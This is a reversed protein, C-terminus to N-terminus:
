LTVRLHIKCAGVHAMDVPIIYAQTHMHTCMCVHMCTNVNTRIISTGLWWFTGRLHRPKLGSASNSSKCPHEHAATTAHLDTKHVYFHMCVHMFKCMNLVSAHACLYVWSWWQAYVCVCVCACLCVCVCLCMCAYVYMCLVFRLVFCACEQVYTGEAGHMCCVHVHTFTHRYINCVYMICVYMICVYLYMCVRACLYVCSWAAPNLCPPVVTFPDYTSTSIPACTHMHAYAQVYM